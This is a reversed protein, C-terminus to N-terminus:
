FSGFTGTSDADSPPVRTGSKVAMPIVKSRSAPPTAVRAPRPASVQGRVQGGGVLDQLRTVVAMTNEAQANLEESAAASEEATAATNQTVKEMQTIAQTVQGIGDNQQQSAGSVDDVLSRVRAVSDTISVIASAVQEVTTAGEQARTTSEEILGATDKAAQASRQALNRVEDAVVAFGMGADGARAAEVAANLALINTQFAIEDITKIIKSVKVSSEQIAHMSAVMKRLSADSEQVRRDVDGMLGAASKSNDANHKAMSSFEEMSASTEELSAAQESAGQSLTQSAGSVQTSASVVQEAGDRLEHAIAQLTLSASRIVLLGVVAVVLGFVLAFIAVWHSTRITSNADDGIAVAQRDALEALAAGATSAQDEVPALQNAQLEVASDRDGAILLQNMQGHLARAKEMSGKVTGHLRRGEESRLLPEYDKLAAEITQATKEWEQRYKQETAGDSLMARLIIGRDLAVLDSTSSNIVDALRLKSVSLGALDDVGSGVRSLAFISFGGMAAMLVILGVTVLLLKKTLTMDRM